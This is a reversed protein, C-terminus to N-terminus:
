ARMVPSIDQARRNVQARIDHEGHVRSRTHEPVFVGYHAAHPPGAAGRAGVAELLRTEAAMSATLAERNAAEAAAAAAASVQRKEAASTARAQAWVAAMAQEADEEVEAVTNLLTRSNQELARREQQQVAAEEHQPAPPAPSPEATAIKTNSLFGAIFSAVRYKEPKSMGQMIIM